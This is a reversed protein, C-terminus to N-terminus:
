KTRAKLVYTVGNHEFETDKEGNDEWVKRFNQADPGKKDFKKVALAAKTFGRGDEGSVLTVGDRIATVDVRHKKASATAGTVDLTGARGIQPIPHNTLINTVREALARDNTHKAIEQMTTGISVAPQRVNESLRKVEEEDPKPREVVVTVELKKAMFDALTKRSKEYQETVKELESILAEVDNDNARHDKAESILKTPTWAGEAAQKRSAELQANFATLQDVYGLYMEGLSRLTPDTVSDLRNDTETEVTATNGKVAM